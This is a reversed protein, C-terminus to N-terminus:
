KNKQAKRNQKNELIDAIAAIIISKIEMKVMSENNCKFIRRAINVQYSDIFILEM